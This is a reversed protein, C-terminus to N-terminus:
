LLRNKKKAHQYKYEPIKCQLM